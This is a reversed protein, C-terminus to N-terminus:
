SFLLWYKHKGCYLTFLWFWTSVHDRTTDVTVTWTSLLRQEKTSVNGTPQSGQHPVQQMTDSRKGKYPPVVFTKYFVLLSYCKNTTYM